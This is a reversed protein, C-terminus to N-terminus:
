KKTLNIHDRIEAGGYTESRGLRLVIEDVAISIEREIQPATEGFKVAVRSPISYLQERTVELVRRLSNACAEKDHVAGRERAIEIELRECQLRLREKEWAYKSDPKPDTDHRAKNERLWALCKEIDYCGRGNKGPMGERLYQQVTSRHVDLTDALQQTRKIKGKIM